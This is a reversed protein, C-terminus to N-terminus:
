TLIKLVDKAYTHEKKILKVNSRIENVIIRGIEIIKM